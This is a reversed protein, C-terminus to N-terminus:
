PATEGGVAAYGAADIWHDLIEPTVAIRAVKTLIMLVAVDHPKIVLSLGHEEAEVIRRELYVNWLDAITAFNDKPDGYQRNRESLVAKRAKDLIEERVTVTPGSGVSGTSVEPVPANQWATPECGGGVGALSFLREFFSEATKESM